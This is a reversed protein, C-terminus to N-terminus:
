ICMWKEIQEENLNMVMWYKIWDSRKMGKARPDDALFELSDKLFKILIWNMENSQTDIIM